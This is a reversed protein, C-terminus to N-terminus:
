STKEALKHDPSGKMLRSYSPYLKPPTDEEEEKPQERYCPDGCRIKLRWVAREQPDERQLGRELMDAKINDMWRRRPRGRKRRGPVEMRLVRKRVYDDERREVHGYWRLRSEKLKQSLGGVKLPLPM